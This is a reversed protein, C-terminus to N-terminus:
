IFWEPKLEKERQEKALAGFDFPSLFDALEEADKLDEFDLKLGLPASVAKLVAKAADVDLSTGQTEALLCFGKM